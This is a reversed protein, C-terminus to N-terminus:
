RLNAQVDTVGETSRAIEIAQKREAESGVSGTLFVVTDRTDVDIQLGKVLPDDLLRAKVRFTIGADDVREGLTLNPDPAEGSMAGSRVSIMDKVDHVGSTDRTLKIAADRAEQGDVNGTLTVIGKTTDVNIQSASVRGDAALRTKVMGTITADTAQACGGALSAALALAVVAAASTERM